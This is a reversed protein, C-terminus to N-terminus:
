SNNNSIYWKEIRNVEIEINEETTRLKGDITLIDGKKINKYIFDAKEDYGFIKIKNIENIQLWFYSISIRKKRYLFDFEPENIVKGKLFCINM